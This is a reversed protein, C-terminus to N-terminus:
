VGQAEEILAQLRSAIEEYNEEKLDLQTLKKVAANCEEATGTKQKLTRLRLVIKAKPSKADGQKGVDVADTDEDATTIGLANLLTYRKAFTQASAYKQPATMFGEKDIPIELTSTESHGLKHTIKCTVVMHGEIHKTDWSYSLGNAKMAQKIQETIGDLPAFQYRVSRGDKNLVKKTKKIVPCALQFAGMAETFQEKAYEAKVKARLDFLREMTEVPANAAIAQQIFGEVSASDKQAVIVGTEAKREKAM